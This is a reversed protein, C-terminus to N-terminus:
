FPVIDTIRFFHRLSLDKVYPVVPSSDLLSTTTKEM